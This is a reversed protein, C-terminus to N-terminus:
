HSPGTELTSVFRHLREQEGLRMRLFEVGFELGRSWRVVAQDVVLPADQDPLYLRLKLSWGALVVLDSGVMCGATSLNSVTGAGVLYQGLFDLIFTVPFRPSTRRETPAENM